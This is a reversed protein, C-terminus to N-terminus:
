AHKKRRARETFRARIRPDIFTMLLDCGLMVLCFCISVVSVAGQVAIFDRTQVSDVLYGGMGPISFVREIILGGGFGTGFSMGATTIIPMLANPLAHLWIVRNYPVGKAKAMVVYDSRLVELMSSRTQRCLQATINFGISVIPMIWHKFSGDGFAPLWRLNYSFLLVLMLSFWFGPMSIGILSAVTAIADGVKNQHLAAYVGLPIGTVIAFVIAGLALKVSNPLRVAVDASVSTKNILATGLDLKTVLKWVYEALQVIYPRDLGLTKRLDAIEEATASSPLLVAAADGPAFWLITFVLTVVGIMIPIVLLVRKLIYTLM